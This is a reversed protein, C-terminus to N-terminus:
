EIRAIKTQGTFKVSEGIKMEDYENTYLEAHRLHRENEDPRFFIDIIKGSKIDLQHFKKM